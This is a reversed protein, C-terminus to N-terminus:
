VAFDAQESCIVSLSVDSRQQRATYARGRTRWSHNRAARASRAAVRRRRRPGARPPPRHRDFATRDHKDRHAGRGARGLNRGAQEGTRRQAPRYSRTAHPNNGSRPALNRGERGRTGRVRRRAARCLASQAGCRATTHSTRPGRPRPLLTPARDRTAGLTNQRSRSPCAAPCLCAQVEWGKAGARM